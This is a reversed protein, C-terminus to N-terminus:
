RGYRDVTKSRYLKAGLARFVQGTGIYRNSFGKQMARQPTVVFRRSINHYAQKLMAAMSNTAKKMSNIDEEDAVFLANILDDGKKEVVAEFERQLHGEIWIAQFAQGTTQTGSESEYPKGRDMVNAQMGGAITVLPKDYQSDYIIKANEIGVVVINAPPLIGQKSFELDFEFEVSLEKSM